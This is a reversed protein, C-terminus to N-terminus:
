KVDGDLAAYRSVEEALVQMMHTAVQMGSSAMEGMVGLLEPKILGCSEAQKGAAGPVPCSPNSAQRTVPKSAQRPAQERGQDTACSTQGSAPGSSFFPMGDMCAQAPSATILTVIALVGLSPITKNAKM